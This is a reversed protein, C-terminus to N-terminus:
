GGSQLAYPTDSSGIVLLATVGTPMPANLVFQPDRDRVVLNMADALTQAAAVDDLNGSDLPMVFSEESEAGAGLNVGGLEEACLAMARASAGADVCVVTGGEMITKLASEITTETPVTTPETQDIPANTDATPSGPAPADGQQTMWVLGVGGVTVLTVAAATLLGSRRHPPRPATARLRVTENLIEDLGDEIVVDSARRDLAATLDEAITNM